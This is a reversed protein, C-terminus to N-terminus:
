VTVPIGFGYFESNATMTDKEIVEFTLAMLVTQPVQAGPEIEWITEDDITHQIGSFYGPQNKYFDGLTLEIIPPLLFGDASQKSPFALGTIFNVKDWIAQLEIPSWAHVYLSFALSRVAGLYVINREIRGIYKTDSFEPKVTENIGTLMARFPELRDNVKDYITVTILDQPTSVGNIETPVENGAVRRILNLTDHYYGPATRTDKVGIERRPLGQFFQQALMDDKFPDRSPIQTVAGGVMFPTGTREQNIQRLKELTIGGVIGRNPVADTGINDTYKQILSAQEKLAKRVFESRSDTQYTLEIADDPFQLKDLMTQQDNRIPSAPTITDNTSAISTKAKQVASGFQSTIAAVGGTQLLTSGRIARDIRQSTPTFLTPLRDLGSADKLYGKVTDPGTIFYRMQDSQSQIARGTPVNVNRFINPLGIISSVTGAAALASAALQTARQAFPTYGERLVVSYLKGAVNFEPRENVGLTGVGGGIGLTGILTQAIQNTTLASLLSGANPKGTIRVTAQNATEKQLRGASGVQRTSAPSKEDSTLTADTQDRLQRKFHENPTLNLNIFLPNILRTESIANGTQLLQQKALWLIGRSSTLWRTMRRQDTIVHAIPVLRDSNGVGQQNNPDDPRTYVIPNLDASKKMDTIRGYLKDVTAKFRDDLGKLFAM